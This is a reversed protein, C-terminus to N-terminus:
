QLRLKAIQCSRANLLCSRGWDGALYIGLVRRISRRRVEHIFRRSPIMHGQITPAIQVLIGCSGAQKM